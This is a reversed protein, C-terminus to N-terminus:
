LRRLSYPAPDVHPAHRGLLESVLKGTAPAMSMGLMNHGAAILVNSMAPLRDIIPVGDYTMPRWGYWREVILECGPEELYPEAGQLLLDLRQQPLSTDYGAFEMTSGLRYASKMPTVGVHTEPFLLPIQPCRDPRPMTISYGKGPQIPVRCGLTRELLPTLAGTAIVFAAAKLEGQPTVVARARGDHRVFDVLECHERIQVGRALLVRRWESMLKDPRLHADSPFHWGGALGARLAPELQCVQPGDYRDALLHFHERLLAATEAYHQMAAPNRFVLLLGRQQWECELKETAVLSKYLELSSELLPQCGAGAALMDRRNARRAFKLLWIWLRPDRRPRISFPSNKAVLAQLAKGIAGPEALPLVHSPCIFGCNGHSCGRGFEDRELITVQWGAQSLYYACAAGIVGGGVVIADQADTTM